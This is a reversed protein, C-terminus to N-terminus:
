TPTHHAPASAEDYSFSPSILLTAAEPPLRASYEGDHEGDDSTLLLKDGGFPQTPPASHSQDAHAVHLNYGQWSADEGGLEQAVLLAAAAACVALSVAPLLHVMRAHLTSPHRVLWALFPLAGLSVASNIALLSGVAPQPLGHSVFLSYEIMAISHMCGIVTARWVGLAVVARTQQKVVAVRERCKDCTAGSFPQSRRIVNGCSSCAVAFPELTRRRPKPTPPVHSPVRPLAKGLARGALASVFAPLALATQLGLLGCVALIRPAGFAVLAGIAHTFGVMLCLGVALSARPRQQARARTSADSMWEQPAEM